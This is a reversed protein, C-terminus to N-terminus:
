KCVMLLRSYISGDTGRVYIRLLYLGAHRRDSYLQGGATDRIAIAATSPDLLGVLALAIILM